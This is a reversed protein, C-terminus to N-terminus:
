YQFNISSSSNGYDGSGSLTSNWGQAVSLPPVYGVKVDPQIKYAGGEDDNVRIPLLQGERGERGTKGDEKREVSVVLKSRSHVLGLYM